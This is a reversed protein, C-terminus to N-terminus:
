NQVTLLVGPQTSVGNYNATVSQDGSALGAPVVVNFQFEGPGILGAFNVQAAIGGIQVTPLTPLRGSQVPLGSQIPTNVAGFGNGYLVVTEGAKAPTSLGPYLTGPGLYKGNAHEAAVYPGGNFVFFAPAAPQAFATIAPTTEGNVTLQVPVQGSIADPPTLVNVQTPSVYYVYAGKGNVTVSVGDLQLPMQNASFDSAQWIRSDGARALNFGKVEVWTNPAITPIEGEANAVLSIAPLLGTGEATGEILVPMPGVDILADPAIPTTKGALDRYQTYGLGPTYDIYGQTNWVAQAVYGGPRTFNCTWTGNAIGSCPQTISAGVLWNYLQNYALGAATPQMSSNTITGWGVSPGAWAFWAAMQLNFSARLGAQLLIYRALWAAQTGSDTVAGDGWSGETQLMPKGALGYQDFVARMGVAISSIAGYCTKCTASLSQDPMPFPVTSADAIYGHFAGGDSYVSGGAQLYATMASVSNAGTVSPTLLQSYRDQHVIPYAAKALALMQANSGTWCQSNDIENWLEYYRIHPQNTGNYHQILATLFDKWDQLNDPPATCVGSSSCTSQDAIAWSPTGNSLAIVANVTNTSDALGHQQAAAVYADFLSFDFNGQSPEMQNWAFEQHALTGISLQPYNGGLGSM